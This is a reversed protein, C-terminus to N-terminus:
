LMKLYFFCKKILIFGSINCKYKTLNRNFRLTDYSFKNNYEYSKKNYRNSTAAFARIITNTVRKKTVIVQLRL